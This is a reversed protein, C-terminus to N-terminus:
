KKKIKHGMTSMFKEVDKRDPFWVSLRTAQFTGPGVRVMPSIQTFQEGFMEYAAAHVETATKIALVKTESQKHRRALEIAKEKTMAIGTRPELYRAAGASGSNDIRWGANLLEDIVLPQMPLMSRGM